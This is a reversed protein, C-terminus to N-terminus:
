IQIIISKILSSYNNQNKLSQSLVDQHDLIETEIGAGMNTIGSVAAVRLKLYRAYISEVATSMGVADAGITRYFKIEAPTEYTPGSVQLYTGSHARIGIKQCQSLILKQLEVDYTKTMDCFIPFDETPKVGILPNRCSLNIHDSLVMIDGRCYNPNIGGAANTLILTEIGLTYMIRIPKLIEDFSRGEYIHFRGQAVIIDIGNMAGLIFNGKHGAVSCVPMDPLSSYSVTVKNELEDCVSSWGSGLILGIRPIRNYQRKLIEVSQNITIDEFCKKAM